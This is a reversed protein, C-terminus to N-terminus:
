ETRMADVLNLKAARCAPYLGFFLGIAASFAFGLAIVSPNLLIAWGALRTIILAAAVGFVTGVAGGVLCLLVAETLFQSRIDRRRAGLAQRLGIERTREAVSVLMINMIGIGGVVLSVSAIAGLLITLTRTAAAQAEMVASAERILFDDEAENPLRHLQRLVTRVEAMVSPLAPESQAKVMILEVARRDVKSRGGLVRLKATTIPILALDDQDRGAAAAQGKEALIGIVMFPVHGIRILKDLPDEDGFLRRAAMAGLLVVKAASAVEHEAISRGAQVPWDRAILYDPTIGGVTTSWNRNGYVLQGPGSVMPAAVIVGPVHEAVYSADADTLTHLSGVASRVGDRRSSGPSVLLVNTGLSRISDSVQKQAGSGVATMAIVTGVGIVIGLMALASRFMNAGVARVAIRV